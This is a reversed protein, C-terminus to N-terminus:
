EEEWAGAALARGYRRQKVASHRPSRTGMGRGSFIHGATSRQVGQPATNTVANGAADHTESQESVWQTLPIGNVTIDSM